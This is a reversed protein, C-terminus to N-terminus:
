HFPTCIFKIEEPVFTEDAMFFIVFFFSRVPFYMYEVVLHFISLLLTDELIILLPLCFHSKKLYRM